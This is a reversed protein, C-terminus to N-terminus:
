EHFYWNEESAGPPGCPFWSCTWSKSAWSGRFVLINSFSARVRYFGVCFIHYNVRFTINRSNDQDDPTVVWLNATKCLELSYQGTLLAMPLGRITKSDHKLIGVSTKSVIRSRLVRTNLRNQLNGDLFLDIFWPWLLFFVPLLFCLQMSFCVSCAIRLLQQVPAARGRIFHIGGRVGGPALERTRRLSPM